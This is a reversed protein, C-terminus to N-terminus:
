ITKIYYIIVKYKGTMDNSSNLGLEGNSALYVASGYGNIIQGVPVQTGGNNVVIGEIKILEINTLGSAIPQLTGTATGTFVRQYIYEGNIWKGVAKESTSYVNSIDVGGVEVSSTNNPMCDVGISHKVRDIFFAPIGISVFTNYLTGQWLLDGGYIEIVWKYRNDLAVTETVGDTLPFYNSWQTTTGTIIQKYRYKLDISNNGDLSSYDLSVTIDTENYFNAKRQITANPIPNHWSLITLNLIQTTTFGRSDTLTITASTNSSLNLTGIDINKSSSSITETTTAGNITVSVSSLSAYHLATANTIKVRLTSKDQILKQNNSTIAITTSNTDEYSANFTPESNVVVARYNKADTGVLTNNSDYTKLRFENDYYKANPITQYLTNALLSTDIDITGTASSQILTENGNIVMYLNQHYGEVYQTINAQITEGIDFTYKNLTFTSNRKTKSLTVYGFLECQGPDYSSYGSKSLIAYFQITKNGDANHTIEKTGSFVLKSEYAGVTTTDLYQNTSVYADVDDITAKYTWGSSSTRMGGNKLYIDYQITSKNNVDDVSIEYVNGYFTYGRNLSCIGYLTAM